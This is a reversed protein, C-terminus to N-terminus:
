PSPSEWMMTEASRYMAEQVAISRLYSAGDTEFADGSRLGRVFHLQTQHVCDGAFGHRSPQYAHPTEPQGLEQVTIRADDYLRITGGDCEVLLDGFTYRPNEATSENFRNADYVGVGSHRFQFIGIATDEGAIVPNLKRHMCWVRDIEGALYRFTDITHIGAEFILFQKMTQFYPQRALYADDGWGDGMRNRHTITHVNQGVVGSDLLSKIERYWPQFRFNEHVMFRVGARDAIDVIQRAEAVTPALPKQCIIAVGARACDDVLTFHTDPRTVIDVFDPRVQELMAAHDTYIGEVGYTKAAREAAAPNSDCVAVLDVGPIRKWSDFHFQSFYGAGVVAGRLKPGDIQSMM